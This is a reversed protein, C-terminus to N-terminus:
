ALGCSAEYDDWNVGLEKAMEKELRTAFQHENFYPAEPADGPEKGPDNFNMDFADIADFSINRHRCLFMEVMEHVAILAEYRWDKQESVMIEDVAVGEDTICFDHVIRSTYDGVTDYRQHAHPLTIITIDLM